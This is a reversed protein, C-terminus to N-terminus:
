KAVEVGNRILEEACSVCLRTQIPFPVKELNLRQNYCISGVPIDCKCERCQSENRTKKVIHLRGYTGDSKEEVITNGLKELLIDGSNEDFECIYLTNGNFDKIKFIAERSSCRSCITM